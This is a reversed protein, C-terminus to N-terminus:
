QGRLHRLEPHRYESDQLYEGVLPEGYFEGGTADSRWYESMGVEAYLDGKRGLDGDATSGSGTELVFDPAKGVEM